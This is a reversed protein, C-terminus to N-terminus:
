ELWKGNKKLHIQAESPILLEIKNKKGKILISKNLIDKIAKKDKFNSIIKDGSM